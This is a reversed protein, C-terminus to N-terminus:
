KVYFCFGAFDDFRQRDMNAQSPDPSNKLFEYNVNTDNILKAYVEVENKSCPGELQKLPSARFFVSNMGFAFLGKIKTIILVEYEYKNSKYDPNVTYAGISSYISQGKLTIWDFTGKSDTGTPFTDIRAMYTILKFNYNIFDYQIGSNREQLQEPIELKIRLTDGLHLTDKIGYVQVPVNFQLSGSSCDDNKCATCCNCVVVWISLLFFITKKM